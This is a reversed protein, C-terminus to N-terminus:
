QPPPTPEQDGARRTLDARVDAALDASAHIAGLVIVRLRPPSAPALGPVVVAYAPVRLVGQLLERRSFM